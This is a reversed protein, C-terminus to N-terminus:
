EPNFTQQEKVRKLTPTKKFNFNWMQPVGIGCSSGQERCCHLKTQSDKQKSLGELGLLLGMWEKFYLPIWPTQFVILNRVAKGYHQHKTTAQSIPPSKVQFHSPTQCSWSQSSKRAHFKEQLCNGSQISGPPGVEDLTSHLFPFTWLAPLNRSTCFEKSYDQSWGLLHFAPFKSWGEMSDRLPKEGGGEAESPTEVGDQFSPLWGRDLSPIGWPHVELSWQCLVRQQWNWTSRQSQPIHSQFGGASELLLWTGSLLFKIRGKWCIELM